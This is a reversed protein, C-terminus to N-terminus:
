LGGRLWVNPMGIAEIVSTIKINKMLRRKNCPPTKKRSFSFIDIRFADSTTNMIKMTPLMVEVMVFSSEVTSLQANLM